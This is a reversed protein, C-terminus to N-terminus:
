SCKWARIKHTFRENEPPLILYDHYIQTLCTNWDEVVMLSSGMFDTEVYNEFMTKDFWESEGYGGWAMMAVHETNCDSLSQAKEEILSVCRKAPWRRGITLAVINKLAQKPINETKASTTYALKQMYKRWMVHKKMENLTDFSVDIPFVDVWLYEKTIGKFTPTEVRITKNVYKTFPFPLPSNRGNLLERRPVIKKIDLKLFREYDERPMAIDADDDWPIFGNHRIAGLMTGAYLSYRLGERRCIDDIEVLMAHLENQIEILSLEEM